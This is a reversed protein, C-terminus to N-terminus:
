VPIGNDPEGRQGLNARGSTAERPRGKLLSVGTRLARQLFRNGEGTVTEVEARTYPFVDTPLPSAWFYRGFRPIRPMLPESDDRLLVLIDADSRAGWNGEAFSGFLLVDEVAPVEEALRRALRRLARLVAGRDVFRVKVTASSRRPM